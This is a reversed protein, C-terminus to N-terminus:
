SVGESISPDKEKTECIPLDLSKSPSEISADSIQVSRGSSILRNRLEVLRQLLQADSMQSPDVLTLSIEQQDVFGGLKAFVAVANAWRDPHKCAWEFISLPDPRCQLIHAVVDRFPTRSFQELKDRLQQRTTLNDRSLWTLTAVPKRVPKM